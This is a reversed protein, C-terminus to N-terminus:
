GLGTGATTTVENAALMNQVLSMVSAKMEATPAIGIVSLLRDLIAFAATSLVIAIFYQLNRMRGNRFCFCGRWMQATSSALETSQQQQVALEGRNVIFNTNDTEDAM